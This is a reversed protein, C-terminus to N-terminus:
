CGEIRTILTPRITTLKMACASLGFCILLAALVFALKKVM